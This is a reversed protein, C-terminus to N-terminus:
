DFYLIHVALWHLDSICNLQWSGPVNSKVGTPPILSGALPDAIETVARIVGALVPVTAQGRDAPGLAPALAGAVVAMETETAGLPLAPHLSASGLRPPIPQQLATGIERGRETEAATVGRGVEVEVGTAKMPVTVIATVIVTATVIVIVTAALFPAIM